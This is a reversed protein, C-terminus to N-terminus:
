ATEMAGTSFTHPPLATAWFNETNPSSKRLRIDHIGKPPFSFFDTALVSAEAWPFSPGLLIALVERATWHNLTQVEVALPMPEIGPHLALIGCVM